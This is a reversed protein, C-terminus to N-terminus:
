ECRLASMPDVRSARRAPIWCALFAVVILLASVEVFTTQDTTSVEFLLAELLRTLAFSGILGIAVGTLAIAMGRRIVLATVDRSKAGLAMRIGIEHRRQTVSYSIVGYTGISALLLALAAFIGLLLSRFRPQAISESILQDM